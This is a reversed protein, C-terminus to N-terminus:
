DVGDDLQSPLWEGRIENDLDGSTVEHRCHDKAPTSGLSAHSGSVLLDNGNM